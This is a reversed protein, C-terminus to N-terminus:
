SGLILSFFYGNTKWKSGDMLTIVDDDNELITGECYRVIEASFGVLPVSLLLLAALLLSKKM